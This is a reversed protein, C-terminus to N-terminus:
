AQSLKKALPSDPPIMNPAGCKPCGAYRSSIRWLSYLLGPVLFFLWLLIETGINGKTFQKPRGVYGCNVCVRDHPRALYEAPLPPPVAPPKKPEKAPARYESVTKWDSLGECWYFDGPQLEGSFIKERFDSETFEGIPSGDAKCAHFTIM